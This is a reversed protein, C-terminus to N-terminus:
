DEDADVGQFDLKIADFAMAFTNFILLSLALNSSEDSKQGQIQLINEANSLITERINMSDKEINNINREISKLCYSPLNLNNVDLETGANSLNQSQNFTFIANRNIRRCGELVTRELEIYVIRQSTIVACFSFVIVGIMPIASKTKILRSQRTSDSKSPTNTLWFDSTSVLIFLAIEFVILAILSRWTNESKEEVIRSEQINKSNWGSMFAVNNIIQKIDKDIKAEVIKTSLTYEGHNGVYKSYDSANKIGKTQAEEFSLGFGKAAIIDISSQTSKVDKILGHDSSM